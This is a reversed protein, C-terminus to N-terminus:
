RVRVRSRESLGRRDAAAEAAKEVINSPSTGARHDDDITLRALATVLSLTRLDAAHAVPVRPEDSYPPPATNPYPSTPSNYPLDFYYQNYSPPPSDRGSVESMTVSQGFTRKEEAAPAVAAIQTRSVRTDPIGASQNEALSDKHRDSVRGLIYDGYGQMRNYFEKSTGYQESGRWTTELDAVLRDRWQRAAAVSFKESKEGFADFRGGESDVFNAIKARYDQLPMTDGLGDHVVMHPSQVIRNWAEKAYAADLDSIARHRESLLYELALPRNAWARTGDPQKVLHNEYVTTGDRKAIVIRDYQMSQEADFVARAWGAYAQDHKDRPVLANTEIHGKRLAREARDLVGTWSQYRPTAVVRLETRYGLERYRAALEASGPPHAAEYIINARMEEAYAAMATMLDGSGALQAYLAASSPYKEAFERFNPLYANFDDGILKQTAGELGLEAQRMTTSKGSGPQGAIVVYTPQDPRPGRPGIDPIIRNNLIQEATEKSITLPGDSQFFGLLRM